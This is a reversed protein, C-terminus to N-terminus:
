VKPSTTHRRPTLTPAHLGRRYCSQNAQEYPVPNILPQSPRRHPGRTRSRESQRRSMQPRPQTSSPPQTPRSNGTMAVTAPSVAARQVRITNQVPTRGRAFRQRQRASASNYGGGHSVARDNRHQGDRWRNRTTRPYPRAIRRKAAARHGWREHPDAKRSAGAAAAHIGARSVENFRRTHTAIDPPESVRKSAPQRCTLFEKTQSLPLADRRDFAV